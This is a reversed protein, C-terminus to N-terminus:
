VRDTKSKYRCKYQRICDLIAASKVTPHLNKIKYFETYDGILQRPTGSLRLGGGSRIFIDVPALGLDDDITSGIILTLRFAPNTKACTIYINTKLYSGVTRVSAFKQCRKILLKLIDHGVDIFSKLEANERVSLNVNSLCFVTLSAVDKSQLLPLIVEDVLVKAGLQYAVGLSCRKRSAYRRHGDPIYYVSFNRRSDETDDFTPRVNM